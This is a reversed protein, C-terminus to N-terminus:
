GDLPSRVGLTNREAVHTYVMTTRVDSHGLLEQITRIDYAKEVLHTAFSHRLTHVTVHKAIGAAKAADKIYRQFTTSSVHHRRVIKTRPDVSLNGSPFLWFWNWETGANPYKRVMATPLEVGSVQDERDQDYIERVKSFHQRLPDIMGDPLVTQRDKDRKGGRITLVRRDLDIDQIRLRTCERLRLGAGYTLAAMVYAEGTLQALLRQVEGESLVVPLREKRPARVAEGVDGLERDLAHRYFFLLANLAQNQTSSSVNRDVALYSLFRQAEEVTLSRPDTGRLFQYFRRIWGMYAQETRYSKKQLRLCEKVKEGCNRWVNDYDHTM